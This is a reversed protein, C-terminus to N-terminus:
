KRPQNAQFITRLEFSASVTADYTSGAILIHERFDDKLSPQGLTEGVYYTTKGVLKKTSNQFVQITVTTRHPESLLFRFTEDWIVDKQSVDLKGSNKFELVQEFPLDLVDAIVDNNINNAILLNLKDKLVVAKDEDFSDTTKRTVCPPALVTTRRSTKTNKETIIGGDNDVFPLCEVTALYQVQPDANPVNHCAQIGVSLVAIVPDATTGSKCKRATATGLELPNWVADVVLECKLKNLNQGGLSMLNQAANFM